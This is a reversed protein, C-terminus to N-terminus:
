TFSKGEQAGGKNGLAFSLNFTCFSWTRLAEARTFDRHAIADPNHRRPKRGANKGDMVLGCEEPNERVLLCGLTAMVGISPIGLVIWAGYWGFRASGLCVEGSVPRILRMLIKLWTSKGSGSPGAEGITDGHRIVVSM